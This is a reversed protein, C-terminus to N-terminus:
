STKGRRPNEVIKENAQLNLDFAIFSHLIEIEMRNLSDAEITDIKKGESAFSHVDIIREMRRAAGSVRSCLVSSLM